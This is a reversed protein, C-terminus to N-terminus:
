LYHLVIAFCLCVVEFEQRVLANEDSVFITKKINKKAATVTVKLDLENGATRSCYESLAQLAIM